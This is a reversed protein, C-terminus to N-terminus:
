KRQVCYMMIAVTTMCMSGSLLAAMFHQYSGKTLIVVYFRSVRRCTIPRSFVCARVCARVCVCVCVRVCV